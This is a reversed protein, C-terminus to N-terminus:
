LKIDINHGRFTDVAMRDAAKEPADEPQQGSRHQGGGAGGNKRRGDPDSKIKGDELGDRSRVQKMKLRADAQGRVMEFDQQVVAQQNINHQVQSVETAKPVIIQLNMPSLDMAM